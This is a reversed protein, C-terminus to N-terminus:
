QFLVYTAYKQIFNYELFTDRYVITYVLISLLIYFGFANLKFSLSEYLSRETIPQV